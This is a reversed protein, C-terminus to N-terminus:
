RIEFPLEMEGFILKYNGAELREKLKIEMEDIANESFSGGYPTDEECLIVGTDVNILKYSEPIEVEEDTGNLIRIGISNGAYSYVYIVLEGEPLFDDMDDVIKTLVLGPLKEGAEMYKDVIKDLKDLKKRYRMPYIQSSFSISEDDFRFHYSESEGDYVFMNTFQKGHWFNMKYKRVVAELEDLVALDTLYEKVTPDQSYWEASEVTILAQNDYRKVTKSHYGGNMGGGINYSYSNLHQGRINVYNEFKRKTGIIAFLVIVIAALIIIWKKTRLRKLM